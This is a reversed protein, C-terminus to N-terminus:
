AEPHSLLEGLRTAERKEQRHRAADVEEKMWAAMFRRGDETITNSRIRPAQRLDGFLSVRKKLSAKWRVLHSLMSVVTSVLLNNHDPASSRMPSWLNGLLTKDPSSFFVPFRPGPPFSFYHVSQTASSRRNNPMVPSQLVAASSGPTQYLVSRSPPQLNIAPHTFSSSFANSCRCLFLSASSASLTSTAGPTVTTLKLRKLTANIPGVWPSRLHRRSHRYRPRFGSLVSNYIIHRQTTTKTTTTIKRVNVSGSRIWGHDCSLRFWVLDFRSDSILLSLLCSLVSLFTALLSCRRSLISFYFVCFLFM